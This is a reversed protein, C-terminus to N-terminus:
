NQQHHHSFVMSRLALATHFPPNFSPFPVIEAGPPTSFSVCYENVERNSFPGPVFGSSNIAAACAAHKEIASDACNPPALRVGSLILVLTVRVISFSSEPHVIVDLWRSTTPFTGPASAAAKWFYASAASFPQGTDFTSFALIEIVAFSPYTPKPSRSEPKPRQRKTQCGTVRSYFLLTPRGSVAAKPGGSCQLDLNGDHRFQCVRM